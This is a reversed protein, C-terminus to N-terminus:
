NNTNTDEITLETHLENWFIAAHAGLQSKIESTLAEHLALKRNKYLIVRECYAKKLIKDKMILSFDLEKEYFTYHISSYHWTYAINELIEVLPDESNITKLETILDPIFRLCLDASFMSSVNMEGEYNYVLEKVNKAEFDRYLLLQAAYYITKAAWLAATPDFTPLDFTYTNREIKYSRALYEIVMNQEDESIELLNAYLVLEEAERLKKIMNLFYTEM